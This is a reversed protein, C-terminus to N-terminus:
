GSDRQDQRSPNDAPPEQGPEPEVKPDPDDGPPQTWAQFAGPQEPEDAKGGIRPLNIDRRLDNQLEELGAQRALTNPLYRIRRSTEQVTRWTPSMMLKRLYRGLTQGAKVMDRPGLVILVILLIFILELPGIGLFDM